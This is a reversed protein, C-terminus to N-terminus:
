KNIKMIYLAMNFVNTNLILLCVQSLIEAKLKLYRCRPMDFLKSCSSWPNKNYIDHFLFFGSTYNYGSMLCTPWPFCSCSVVSANHSSYFLGWIMLWHCCGECPFPVSKCNWGGFLVSLSFLHQIYLGYWLICVFWKNATFFSFFFSFSDLKSNASFFVSILCLYFKQLTHLIYILYKWRKVWVWIDTTYLCFALSTARGSWNKQLSHYSERTQFLFLSNGATRKVSNWSWRCNCIIM